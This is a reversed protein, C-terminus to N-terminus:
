YTFEGIKDTGSKLAILNRTQLKAYIVHTFLNRIGRLVFSIFFFFLCVFSQSGM